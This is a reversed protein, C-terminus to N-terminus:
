HCAVTKSAYVLVRDELHWRVLLTAARSAQEPM